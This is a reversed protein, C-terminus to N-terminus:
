KWGLVAGDKFGATFLTLVNVVVPSFIFDPSFM